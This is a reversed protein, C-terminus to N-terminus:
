RLLTTIASDNEIRQVIRKAVSQHQAGILDNVIVSINSIVSQKRSPIDKLAKMLAQQNVIAEKISPDDRMNKELANMKEDEITLAAGKLADSVKKSLLKTDWDLTGVRSYLQGILWGLKAQFPDDLQALKADLCTKFRQDAKLSISQNLLAVMDGDQMPGDRDLYFYSQENNNILRNMFESLKAKSSARIIPTGVDLYESAYLAVQKKLVSNLSRVPAVNIYPAKCVGGNRLVLDCTQTLVMFYRNAEKAFIHPHTEQLAANLEDTRALVDGQMLEDANPEGSYVHNM